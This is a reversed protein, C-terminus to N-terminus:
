WTMLNESLKNIWWKIQMNTIRTTQHQLASEPKTGKNTYAMNPEERWSATPGTANTERRTELTKLPMTSEDSSNYVSIAIKSANITPTMSHRKPSKLYTSRSKDEVPAHEHICCTFASEEAIIYTRNQCKFFGSGLVEQYHQQYNYSVWFRSSYLGIDIM